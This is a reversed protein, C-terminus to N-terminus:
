SAISCAINGRIVGQDLLSRIRAEDLSLLDTLVAVTDQGLAPPVQLPVRQANALRIPSAVMPIDGLDPDHATGLMGRARTNPLELADGISLVPAYPVDFAEFREEWEANTRLAIREEVIADVEARRALRDKYDLYRPDNQLDEREIARLLHQWFTNTLCAIIIRGDRTAYSGYPVLSPHRTGVPQPSKGTVFYIQALYGLLGIMGDLMSIDVFSGKGTRSRQHLATLIGITGNIGGIMDGMPLGLKTPTEGPEANVSIAGSLAQVIIDFAPRDRLPGEAGFGSISCYILGPNRASLAAYGLGMSDMVGPRFNEVLVDVQMALDFALKRGEETALDLVVSKKNRNLAIFYHSLDGRFPPWERTHDGGRPSEIKIVEAGQDALTLTAYPGSLVRTFDLVKIDSLPGQPM